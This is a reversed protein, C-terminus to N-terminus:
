AAGTSHEVGRADTFGLSFRMYGVYKKVGTELETESGIEPNVRMYLNMGQGSKNFSSDVIMYATDSGGAAAGMRKAEIVSLRGNYVNIDNDTTGVRGTSKMLIMAEKALAPPVWLQTPNMDILEGRGDKRESFAVLMTELNTENLVGTNANNWVTGGDERTHSASALALTDAGAFCTTNTANILMKFVEKDITRIATQSLKAAQAAVKDYQDDDKMERTLAYGSKWIAPVYNKEFGQLAETYSASKAEGSQRWDELGVGTLHKESAKSSSSVNVLQTYMQPTKKLNDFWIEDILRDLLKGFNGTNIPIPM